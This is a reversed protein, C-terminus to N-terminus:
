QLNRFYDVLGHCTIIELMLRSTAHSDSDQSVKSMIPLQSKKPCLLIPQRCVCHTHLSTRIILTLQLNIFIHTYLLSSRLLKGTTTPMLFRLVQWSELTVRVDLFINEGSLNLQALINVNHVKTEPCIHYKCDHHNTGRTLM